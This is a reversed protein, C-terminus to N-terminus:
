ANLRVAYLIRKSLIVFCFVFRILEFALNIKARYVKELWYYWEQIFCQKECVFAMNTFILIKHITFKLRSSVSSNVWM